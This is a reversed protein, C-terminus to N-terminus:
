VNHYQRSCVMKRTYYISPNELIRPFSPGELCSVGIFHNTTITLAGKLKYDSKDNLPGLM